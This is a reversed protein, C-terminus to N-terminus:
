QDRDLIYPDTETKGQWDFMRVSEIVGQRDYFAALDLLAGVADHEATEGALRRCADARAALYAFDTM